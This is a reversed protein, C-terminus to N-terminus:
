MFMRPYITREYHWGNSKIFSCVVGSSPTEFEGKVPLPNIPCKIRCFCKGNEWRFMALLQVDRERAYYECMRKYGDTTNVRQTVKGTCYERMSTRKTFIIAQTYKPATVKPNENAKLLTLAEEALKSACMSIGDYPCDTCESTGNSCCELAKLIKEKEM